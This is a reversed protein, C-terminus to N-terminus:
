DILSLGAKRMAIRSEKNSINGFSMLLFALIQM